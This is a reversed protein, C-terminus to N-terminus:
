VAYFANEIHNLRGDINYYEIVDYRVQFRSLNHSIIYNLSAKVINSIKREDVAEYAFGFKKSSRTKVEIFVLIDKDLAIIDIEKGLARYNRDLIIYGKDELYKVSVDEGLKGLYKNDM